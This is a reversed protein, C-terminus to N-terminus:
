LAFRASLLQLWFCRSHVSRWESAGPNSNVAVYFLHFEGLAERLVHIWQQVLCRVRAFSGIRRVGCAVCLCWVLASLYSPLLRSTWIELHSCRSCRCSVSSSIMWYSRLSVSRLVRACGAGAAAGLWQTLPYVWLPLGSLM